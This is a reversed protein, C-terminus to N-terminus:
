MWALKDIQAANLAAGTPQCIALRLFHRLKLYEDARIARLHIVVASNAAARM